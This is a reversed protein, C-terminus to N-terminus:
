QPLKDAKASNCKVCMAQTNARSHTGGKSKPVIHDITMLVPAPGVLSYYNVHYGNAANDRGVNPTLGVHTARHSCEPNACDREEHIVRVRLGRTKVREGLLTSIAGALEFDEIPVLSTADM